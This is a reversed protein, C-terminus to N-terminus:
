QFLSKLLFVSLLCSLVSEFKGAQTKMLEVSM